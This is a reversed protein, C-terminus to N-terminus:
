NAQSSAPCSLTTSTSAVGTGHHIVVQLTGNYRDLCTVNVIPTNGDPTPYALAVAVNGSSSWQYTLNDYESQPYAECQYYGGVNECHLSIPVPPANPPLCTYRTPGRKCIVKATSVPCTAKGVPDIPCSDPPPDTALATIPAQLLLVCATLAISLRRM